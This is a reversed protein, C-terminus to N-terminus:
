WEVLGALKLIELYNLVAQLTSRRENQADLMKKIDLASHHGNVLLQLEGPNALSIGKGAVPFKLRTEGPVASIFKQYGRYGEQRVKPTPRPVIKAARKELDTMALTNM